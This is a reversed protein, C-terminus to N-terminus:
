ARGTLALTACVPRHDSTGDWPGIHAEVTRWQRSHFVYDIRVLWRLVFWDRVRPRSQEFSHDGPFTHGFGVGGERWADGLVHTVIRYPTSQDTANFDALLLVPGRQARVFDAIVRATYAREQTEARIQARTLLTSVPHADLVTITTGGFRLRVVLPVDNWQGPLTIGTPQLPYRSLVALTSSAGPAGLVQYPYRAALDRRLAWAVSPNVEQLGVVDAGARRIAAVVGDPHQNTVHVNFTMATLRPADLPPAARLAPPVFLGGYTVLFLVTGFLACARLLFRRLLLAVPVTVALPIFLYLAFTNLLFSWWRNDGLLAHVAVWGLLLAAHALALLGILAAL